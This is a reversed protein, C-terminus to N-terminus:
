ILLRQKRTPDRKFTRVGWLALACAEIEIADEFGWGGRNGISRVTARKAAEDLALMKTHRVNGELLADKLGQASAIVDTTKPRYVYFRPVGIESLNDCLASAGNMGDIVVVSTTSAREALAQALAKTGHETTGEEILEFAALIEKTGKPKRKSKLKCGAL